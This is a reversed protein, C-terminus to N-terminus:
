FLQYFSLAVHRGNATSDEQYGDDKSHSGSNRYFTVQPILYTNRFIRLDASLGMDQQTYSSYTSTSNIRILGAHPVLTVNESIRRYAGLTFSNSNPAQSDTHTTMSLTGYLDLASNEKWGAILRATYYAPLDTTKVSARIEGNLYLPTEGGNIFGHTALLVPNQGTGGRKHTFHEPPDSYDNRWITRSVYPLFVGIHWNSDLGYRVQVSEETLDLSHRGERGYSNFNFARTDHSLTARFDIEGPQLIGVPSLRNEGQSASAALGMIFFAWTKRSM